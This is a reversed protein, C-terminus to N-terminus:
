SAYQDTLPSPAYMRPVEEPHTHTEQKRRSRGEGARSSSITSSFLGDDRDVCCWRFYDRRMWIMRDRIVWEREMGHRGGVGAWVREGTKTSDVLQRGYSIMCCGNQMTHVLYLLASTHATEPTFNQRVAATVISSLNM